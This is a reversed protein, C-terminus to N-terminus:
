LLRFHILTTLLNGGVVFWVLAADAANSALALTPWRGSARAAPRRLFYLNLWIVLLAFALKVALLAPAGGSRWLAAMLPNREVAGQPLAWVTLALDALHGTVILVLTALWPWRRATLARLRTITTATATATRTTM